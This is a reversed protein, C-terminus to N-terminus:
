SRATGRTPVGDWMREMMSRNWELATRGEVTVEYLRRAKGGRTAQPASKESGVLGREELRALTMHISGLSVHRGAVQAVDAQISAGYAEDSTRLVALLLLQELDTLHPHDPM